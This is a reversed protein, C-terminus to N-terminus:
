DRRTSTHDAPAVFKWAAPLAIAALLVKLVDGPLFPVVALAFLEAARVQGSVLWTVGALWCFGCGLIVFSGAFLAAAATFFRRDWGRRALLGSVAAAPVFALLYGATPGIIVPLAPLSSPSWASRGGAFVPLGALGEALYAAMAMAGLRPGLLAGILLVAFTQLTVPVPTYPLPISVQACVAVLLSGALTLTADRLWPRSFTDTRLLVARALTMRNVTM